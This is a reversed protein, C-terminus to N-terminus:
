NDDVPNATTRSQTKVGAQNLELNKDQVAILNQGLEVKPGAPGEQMHVRSPAGWWVFLGAIVLCAGGTAVTAVTLGGAYLIVTGGAAWVGAGAMRRTHEDPTEDPRRRFGGAVWAGAAAVVGIAGAGGRSSGSTSSGSAPQASADIPTPSAGPTPTDTPSETGASPVPQAPDAPPSETWQGPPVFPEGAPARPESAPSGGDSPTQAPTEEAPAAPPDPNAWATGMSLGAAAAVALIATM